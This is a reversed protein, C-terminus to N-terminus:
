DMRAPLGVVEGVTKGSGTYNRQDVRRRLEHIGEERTLGQALLLDARQGANTAESLRREGVPKMGTVSAIYWGTDGKVVLGYYTRKKKKAAAM